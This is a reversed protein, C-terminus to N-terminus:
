NDNRTYNREVNFHSRSKRLNEVGKIKNIKNSDQKNSQLLKKNNNSKLVVRLVVRLDAILIVM